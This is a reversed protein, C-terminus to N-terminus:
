EALVPDTENKEAHGLGLSSICRCRAIAVSCVVAVMSGRGGGDDGGDWGRAIATLSCIELHLLESAELHEWSLISIILM